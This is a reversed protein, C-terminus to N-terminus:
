GSQGSRSSGAATTASSTPADGPLNAITSVADGGYVHASPDADDCLGHVAARDVAHNGLRAAQAGILHIGFSHRYVASTHGPLVAPALSNHTSEPECARTDAVELEDLVEREPMEILTPM